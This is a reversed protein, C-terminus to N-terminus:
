HEQCGHGGCGEMLQADQYMLGWFLWLRDPLATLLAESKSARNGPYPDSRSLEKM